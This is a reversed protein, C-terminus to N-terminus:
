AHIEGGDPKPRPMPRGPAATNFRLVRCRVCVQNVPYAIHPTSRAVAEGIYAWRHFGLRCWWAAKM